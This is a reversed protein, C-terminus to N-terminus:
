LKQWWQLDDDSINSIDNSEEEYQTIVVNKKKVSMESLYAKTPTNSLLKVKYRKETEELIDVEVRCKTYTKDSYNFVSYWYVGKKAKKKM